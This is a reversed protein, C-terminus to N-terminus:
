LLRIQHSPPFLWTAGVVPACCADEPRWPLFLQHSSPCTFIGSAEAEQAWDPWLMWVLCDVGCGDRSAEEKQGGQNRVWM